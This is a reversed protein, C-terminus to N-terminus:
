DPLRVSQAHRFVDRPDWRAKTRQLRPYNDKYYLTSWAVGSTNWRPDGLDTDPYNIYCGDSNEDPVPVGGTGAFLQRYTERVWAVNPDDDAVAGWFSQVLVKLVSDRQAVATAGPAVANIRGGYSFLVAGARPNAFAPETLQRYLAEAQERSLSRRLYAAKHDARQTPDTLAPTNTAVYSTAHLWPWRGPEAAAAMPGLEGLPATMPRRYGAADDVVGDLVAALFDGLLREAAADDGDLHVLMGSGGASRHNLALVASLATAPSGPASNAEHWRGYNTVLRVFRQEDLGAWDLGVGHLLVTSPARPLARTPEGAPAGPSRMLYRTIVGFNGGGGGTHAWWLDGLEGTSDRTAVVSRARGARDVVVVEVGYLHDVTLGDRRSLFGYGGGVIHGGAGVSYCSGGPITVGWRRFLTKYVELLTAGPGISFAGSRQDWIVESLESLDVIVRTEPNCVFDEYCHGGSRVTLRRGSDVADQVARVVQATSTALVVYDPRARWRQNDGATLGPYRPDDPLVTVARDARAPDVAAATRPLTA